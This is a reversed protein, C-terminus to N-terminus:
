LDKDEVVRQGDQKMKSLKRDIAESRLRVAEERAAAENEFDQIIRRKKQRAERMSHMFGAFQTVFWEGSSEWDDIPMTSFLHRQEKEGLHSFQDLRAGLNDAGTGFGNKEVAKSPDFDFPQSQLETFSMATLAQDDYDPNGRRRKKDKPPYRSMISAPMSSEMLTRQSVTKAKKPKPTLHEEEQSVSEIDEDVDDFVTNRRTDDHNQIPWPAVELTPSSTRPDDHGNYADKRTTTSRRIKVERLAERRPERATERMPERKSDRPPERMPLKSERSPSTPRFRNEYHEEYKRYGNAAPEQFGDKMHTSNHRSAETVVTMFGDDRLVFSADNKKRGFQNRPASTQHSPVHKELDRALEPGLEIAVVPENQPTTLGSNMFSEGLQSGSFLGGQRDESNARGRFGPPSGQSPQPSTPASPLETFANGEQLPPATYRGAKSLPGHGTEIMEQRTLSSAPAPASAVPQPQDKRPESVQVHNGNTTHANGNADAGDSNGRAFSQLRGGREKFNKHM